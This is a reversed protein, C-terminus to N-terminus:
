LPQMIAKIHQEAVEQKYWGFATIRTKDNKLYWRVHYLGDILVAEGKIYSDHSTKMVSM